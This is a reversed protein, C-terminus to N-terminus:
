HGRQPVQRVIGEVLRTGRERQGMGELIEDGKGAEEAEILDVSTKTSDPAKREEPGKIRAKAKEFEWFDERRMKPESEKQLVAIRALAVEGVWMKREEVEDKENKMRTLIEAHEDNSKREIAKIIAAIQLATADREDHLNRLIATHLTDPQISTLEDRFKSYETPTLKSAM